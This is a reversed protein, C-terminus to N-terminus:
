GHCRYPEGPVVPAYGPSVPANAPAGSSTAQDELREQAWLGKKCPWQVSCWACTQFTTLAGGVMGQSGRQRHTTLLEQALEREVIRRDQESQPV